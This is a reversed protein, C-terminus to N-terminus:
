FDFSNELWYTIWVGSFTNLDLPSIPSKAGESDLSGKPNFGILIGRANCFGYKDEPLVGTPLSDSPYDPM